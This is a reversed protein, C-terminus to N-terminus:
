VFLTWLKLLKVEHEDDSFNSKAESLLKTINANLKMEERIDDTLFFFKNSAEVSLLVLHLLKTKGYEELETFLVCINEVVEDNTKLNSCFWFYIYRM